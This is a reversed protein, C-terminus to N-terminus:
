KRILNKYEELRMEIKYKWYDIIRSQFEGSDGNRITLIIRIFVLSGDEFPKTTIVGYQIDQFRDEGFEPIEKSLQKMNEETIIDKIVERAIQENESSIKSVKVEVGEARSYKCSVTMNLLVLFIIFKRLKM